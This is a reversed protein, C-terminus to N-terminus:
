SRTNIAPIHATPIVDFTTDNNRRIGHFTHPLLSTIAGHIKGKADSLLSQDTAYGSVKCGGGVGGGGGGGPLSSHLEYWLLPLLNIEDGFPGSGSQPGNLGRNLPYLSTKIKHKRADYYLDFSVGVQHSM